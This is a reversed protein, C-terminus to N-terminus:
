RPLGRDDYGLIEDASRGDRVPLEACRKRIAALEEKLPAGTGTRTRELRERLANLVAETITEGTREALKRALADVEANEINLPM